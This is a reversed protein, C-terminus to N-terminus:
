SNIEANQDRPRRARQVNQAIETYPIRYVDPCEQVRTAAAPIDITKDLNKNPGKAQRFYQLLYQFAQSGKALQPRKNLGQLLRAYGFRAASRAKEKHEAHFFAIQQKEAWKIFCIWTRSQTALTPNGKSDAEIHRDRLEYRPIKHKTREEPTTINIPVDSHTALRFDIYLELYSIDNPQDQQIASCRQCQPECWQLQKAWEAVRWCFEAGFPCQQAQQEIHPTPNHHANPCPMVWESPKADQKQPQEVKLVESQAEILYQQYNTLQELTETLREAAQKREQLTQAADETIAKKANTDACQNGKARWRQNQDQIKEPDQHAKVKEIRPDEPRRQQIHHRIAEWPENYQGNKKLHGAHPTEQIRKVQHVVAQCDSYITITQYTNLAELVATLEAAYSNQAIRPVRGRKILRFDERGPEAEVLAYGALALQPNNGHYTTGDCFVHKRTINKEPETATIHKAANRIQDTYDINTTPALGFHRQTPTWTRVASIETM